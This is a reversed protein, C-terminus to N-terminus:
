ASAGPQLRYREIYDAFQRHIDARRLGYTGATFRGGAKQEAPQAALWRRMGAETEASLTIGFREYIGHVVTMPDRRFDIHRVDHFQRPQRARAAETRAVARQWKEAEVPGMETPRVGDGLYVRQAIELVSCLSPVAEAPDRHTQVIRADPFVELLADIGWLHGPNKLLWTKGPEALGILRLVDAYRRYSALESCGYWWERYAPADLTSTFTNSVFSQQLVDLCEDVTDATMDHAAAMEPAFRLFANLGAVCAQFEPLDAWRERPPRVMPTSALWREIGQFQPDMSLLKHLATTGTRPVGTIVLPREIRLRAYEPHRRWGEQTYLRAILPGTLMGLALPRRNDGIRPDRDLADLLVALGDRYDAPGFDRLGTQASATDHLWDAADSFRQPVQM